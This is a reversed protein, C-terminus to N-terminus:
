IIELLLCESISFTEEKKIQKGKKLKSVYIKTNSLMAGLLFQVYRKKCIFKIIRTKGTKKWEFDQISLRELGNKNFWNKFPMYDVIGKVEYEMVQLNDGVQITKKNIDLFITDFYKNLEIKFEDKLKQEKRRAEEYIPMIEEEHIISHEKQLKLIDEKTM